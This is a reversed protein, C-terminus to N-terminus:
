SCTIHLLHNKFSSNALIYSNFKNNEAPQGKIEGRSKPSDGNLRIEREKYDLLSFTNQSIYKKFQNRKLIDPIHM